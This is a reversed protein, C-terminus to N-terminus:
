LAFYTSDEKRIEGEDILERMVPILTRWNDIGLAEAIEVMRLGQPNDELTDIVETELDEELEEEEGAEVGAAEEMEDPLEPEVAEVPPSPPEPEPVPQTEAPRAPAAAPATKKDSPTGMSRLLEKWARTAEERSERLEGLFGSVNSSLDATFGSLTGKVAQSMEKHTESFQDMLDQTDRRLRDVEATRDGKESLRRDTEDRAQNKRDAEGDRLGSAFDSLGATFDNLESCLRDATEKLATRNGEMRDQTSQKLDKKFQDLDARITDAQEKLAARVGERRDGAEQAMNERFRTLGATFDALDSKLTGSMEDQQQRIEKLFDMTQKKIEGSEAKLDSLFQQRGEYAGAIEEALRRMEDGLM